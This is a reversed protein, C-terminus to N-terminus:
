DTRAAKIFAGLEDDGFLLYDYKFADIESILGLICASVGWLGGGEM